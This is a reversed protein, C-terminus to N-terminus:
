VARSRHSIVHQAMRRLKWLRRAFVGLGERVVVIFQQRQVALLAHQHRAARHVLAEALQAPHVVHRLNGHLERLGVSGHERAHQVDHGVVRVCTGHSEHESALTAGWAQEHGGSVRAQASFVEGLVVAFLVQAELVRGLDRDARQVGFVQRAEKGVVDVRGLIVHKFDLLLDLGLVFEAEHADKRLLTVRVYGHVVVGVDAELLALRVADQRADAQVCVRRAPLGGLAAFEGLRVNLHPELASGAAADVVPEHRNEGSVDVDLTM